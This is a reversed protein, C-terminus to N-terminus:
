IMVLCIIFDEKFIIPSKFITAFKGIGIFTEFVWWIQKCSRYSKLFILLKSLTFDVSAWQRDKITDSIRSFRLKLWQKRLTVGFEDLMIKLFWIFLLRKFRRIQWRLWLYLRFILMYINGRLSKFGKRMKDLGFVIIRSVFLSQACLSDM